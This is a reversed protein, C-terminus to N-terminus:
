FTALWVPWLFFSVVRARPALGAARSLRRPPAPPELGVKVKYNLFMLTPVFPPVRSFVRKSRLNSIINLDFEIITRPRTLVLLIRLKTM